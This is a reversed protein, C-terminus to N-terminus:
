RVMKRVTIAVWPIQRTEFRAGGLYDAASVIEWDAANAYMETMQERSLYNYYRAREDRGEVGGAKFNAFHLGGPKLATFIRNLVGPLQARPVHLLSANAWVADYAEKAALEDFRMVRVGRGLRKAAIAAIEAVGDTPEVSFGADIMAQTDRGAGCGLELILAGPKLQALFPPLHRSAIDPRGSFYAAATQAYYGLTQSDFPDSV